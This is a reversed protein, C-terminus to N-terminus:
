ERASSPVGEKRASEQMDDLQKKAEDLAKQKQAIQDQSQATEKDFEASNRLRNGADAYQAAARLRAERQAVDIERTLLDIQDKQGAIKSKWEDNAKQQDAQSKSEGPKAGDGTKMAAADTPQTTTPGGASAADGGQSADATKADATDSPTGVVSLKDNVPLNDNDFQKAASPASKDKRVSRAYDGLPASDTDSQAVAMTVFGTSLIVGALGVLAIRKM